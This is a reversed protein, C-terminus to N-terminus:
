NRETKGELQLLDANMAAADPQANSRLVYFRKVGSVTQQTTEDVVEIKFDYLGGPLDTIKLNNIEVASEGPKKKSRWDSTVVEKGNLNVISYKVKYNSPTGQEFKLNYIECFGYIQPQNENFVTSANPIIDYGFYKSFKNEQTTKAIQSSIQIDSVSLKNGSFGTVELQKDYRYQQKTNLDAVIVILKYKGPKVQLIAIEPIKGPIQLTDTTRDSIQYEQMDRVTDNQALAVRILANSRYQELDPVFKFLTRPIMLYVEVVSVEESGKYMAWDVDFELAFSAATMLSMLVLLIKSKM